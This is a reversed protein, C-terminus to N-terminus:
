SHFIGGPRDIHPPFPIVGLTQLAVEAADERAQDLYKGDYWFTAAITLGAVIVICSWATRGGRRDSIIQFIPPPIQARICYQKLREEFSTAM